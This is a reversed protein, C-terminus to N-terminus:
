LNIERAMSFKITVQSADLSLRGMRGHVSQGKGGAWERGDLLGRIASHGIM